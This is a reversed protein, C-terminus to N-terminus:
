RSPDYKTIEAKKEKNETLGCIYDPVKNLLAPTCPFTNLNSCKVATPDHERIALRPQYLTSHDNYMNSTSGIEYISECQSVTAVPSPKNQCNSHSPTFHLVALNEPFGHTRASYEARCRALITAKKETPMEQYSIQSRLNKAEKKTTNTQEALSENM